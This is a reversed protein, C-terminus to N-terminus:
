LYWNACRRLRVNADVSIGVSQIYQKEESEGVKDITKARARARM